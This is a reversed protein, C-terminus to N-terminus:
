VTRFSTELTREKGTLAGLDLLPADDGRGAEFLAEFDEFIATEINFSSEVELKEENASDTGEAPQVADIVPTVSATGRGGPGSQDKLYNLYKDKFLWLMKGLRYDARLDSVNMLVEIATCKLRAM